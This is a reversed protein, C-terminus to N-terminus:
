GRTRRLQAFDVVCYCPQRREAAQFGQQRLLSCNLDQVPDHFLWGWAAKGETVRVVLFPRLEGEVLTLWSIEVM